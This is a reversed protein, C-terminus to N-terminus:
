SVEPPDTEIVLVFHTIKTVLSTHDWYDSNSNGISNIVFYIGPGYETVRIM